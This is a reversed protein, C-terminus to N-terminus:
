YFRGILYQMRRGPYRYLPCKYCTKERNQLEVRAQLNVDKKGEEPKGTSVATVKMVPFPYYREGPAADDLREEKVHWGAGELYLGHVLVGEAVNPFNHGESRGDDCSFTDKTVESWYEVEDLSWQLAKKGRTVEQKMSTLFGQPNFFGTLWFSPPREKQVWNWMQYHRDILSKLWAGLNPALWSIEAGSPDVLWTTPVRMEGVANIAEVIQPSMIINGQIAQVINNLTTKVITLMGQM